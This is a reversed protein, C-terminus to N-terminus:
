TKRLLLLLGVLAALLVARLVLAIRTAKVARNNEWWSAPRIGQLLFTTVGALNMLFLSLAGTALAMHGSGLLLGITVLPPLLAVAVLVGILMASVGTTFALAGAAGSGLAVAIDGLAVGDRSAVEPSAPNVRLLVGLIASLVMVTGIGALGTQFARWLLPLDGLTTALAMAMNRGLLPAIVM